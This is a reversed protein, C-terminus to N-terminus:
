GGDAPGVTSANVGASPGPRIDTPCGDAGAPRVMVEVVYVVLGIEAAHRLHWDYAQLPHHVARYLELRGNHRVRVGDVAPPESQSFFSAEKEERTSLLLYVRAPDAPCLQIRQEMGVTVYSERTWRAM